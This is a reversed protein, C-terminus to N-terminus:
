YLMDSNLVVASYEDEIDKILLCFILADPCPVTTAIPASVVISPLGMAICSILM